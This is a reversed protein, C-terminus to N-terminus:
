LELRKSQVPNEEPNVFIQRNQRVDEQRLCFDQDEKCTKPSLYLWKAFDDQNNPITTWPMTFFQRQSNMKGFIDNTDRYLNNNFLDDVQEKVKVESIDCAPKRILNGEEDYNMYDKMTVNMFPNDITPMTCDECNECNNELPEIELKNKKIKIKEDNNYVIYTLILVAIFIYIYKYNSSSISLFVSLYFSLRVLANLREELSQDRSPFFEILRDKDYLIDINNYWFDDNTEDVVEELIKSEEILENDKVKEGEM